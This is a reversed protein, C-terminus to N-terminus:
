KVLLRIDHVLPEVDLSAGKFLVRRYGARDILFVPTAHSVLYDEGAGGLVGGDAAGDSNRDEGEGTSHVDADGDQGAEDQYPALWYAKWVPGLEDETGVLYHWKDLMGKEGSYEHVREVTDRPPDVSVALFQVAAADDGLLAHTRRLAETVVPCVAPCYTYLFTLVVVKGSFDSLSVSRSFQDQLEFSPALDPTDLEIGRFSPDGSCAVGVLLVLGIAPAAWSCARKSRSLATEGIGATM